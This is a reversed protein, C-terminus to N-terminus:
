KDLPVVELHNTACFKAHRDEREKHYQEVSIGCVEAIDSARWFCAKITYGLDIGLFETWDGNKTIVQRLVLQRM